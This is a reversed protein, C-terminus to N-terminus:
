GIMLTVCCRGGRWRASVIVGRLEEPDPLKNGRRALILRPLTTINRSASFTPRRVVALILSMPQYSASGGDSRDGREAVICPRAISQPGPESLHGTDSADAM